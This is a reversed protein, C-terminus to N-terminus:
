ITTNRLSYVLRDRLAEKLNDQFKCTKALSCLEASYQGVTEHEGQNRSHFHFREAMVLPKPNLQRDVLAMLEQYMKDALKAPAVLNRVLTYTKPRAVTLFVAVKRDDEVMNATFYLDLREMYAEWDDTAPDFLELRPEKIDM